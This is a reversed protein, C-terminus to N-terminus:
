SPTQETDNASNRKIIPEPKGSDNAEDKDDCSKCRKEPSRFSPTLEFVRGFFWMYVMIATSVAVGIGM